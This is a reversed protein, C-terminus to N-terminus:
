RADAGELAAAAEEAAAKGRVKNVVEGDVLIEYHPSRGVRRIAVEPAPPEAEKKPPAPAPAIRRAPPSSVRGRNTRVLQRAFWDPFPALDGPAYAEREYRFGSSVKIWVSTTNQIEEGKLNIEKM